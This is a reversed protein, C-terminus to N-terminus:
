GQKKREIFGTLIKVTQFNEPVIDEDAIQVSFTAELKTILKMLGLSDILGQGLLDENPDLSGKRLDGPIEALLISEVETQISM